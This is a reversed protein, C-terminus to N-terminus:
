QSLKDIKYLFVSMIHSTFPVNLISLLPYNKQKTNDDINLKDNDKHFSINNRMNLINFLCDNKEKILFKKVSDIIMELTTDEEIDNNFNLNKIFNLTINNDIKSTLLVNQPFSIDNSFEEEEVISNMLSNKLKLISKMKVVKQQLFKNLEMSKHKKINFNLQLILKQIVKLM